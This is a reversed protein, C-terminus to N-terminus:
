GHGSGRAVCGARVTAGEGVVHDAGAEQLTADVGALYFLAFGFFGAMKM